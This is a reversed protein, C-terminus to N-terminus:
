LYYIIKILMIVLVNTTLMDLMNFILLKILDIDFFFTKFYKQVFFYSHMLKIVSM